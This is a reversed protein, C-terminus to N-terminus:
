VSNTLIFNIKNLRVHINDIQDKTCHKLSVQKMAVFEGTDTNMGKYVIGFGGRGLM